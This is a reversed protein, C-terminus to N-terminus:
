LREIFMRHPERRVAPEWLVSGRRRVGRCGGSLGPRAGQGRRAARSDLVFRQSGGFICLWSVSGRHQERRGEKKMRGSTNAPWRVLRGTTGSSVPAACRRTRAWSAFSIQKNEEIAAALDPALRRGPHRLATAGNVEVSSACCTPSGSAGCSPGAMRASRGSIELGLNLSYRDVRTALHGPALRRQARDPNVEVRFPATSHLITYMSNRSTM